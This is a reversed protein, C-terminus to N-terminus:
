EMRCSKQELMPIMQVMRPEKDQNLTIILIMYTTKIGVLDHINGPGKYRIEASM